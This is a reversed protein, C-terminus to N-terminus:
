WERKGALATTLAEGHLVLATCLTGQWLAGGCQECLTLSTKSVQSVINKLQEESVSSSPPAVIREPHLFLHDLLEQMLM